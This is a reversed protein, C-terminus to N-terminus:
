PEIAAILDNIERALGEFEAVVETLNRPPSTRSQIHQGVSKTGAWDAYEHVLWGQQMAGKYAASASRVIAEFPEAAPGLIKQIEQYAERRARSASASLNYLVVGLVIIDSGCGEIVDGLVRLGELGHVHDTTPAVLYEGAQLAVTSLASVGGVTPLDVVIRDYCSEVRNFAAAFRTAGQPDAALVAALRNLVRGAVVVDLRDRVDVVVKLNVGHIVADALRRGDGHKEPKLGMALTANAQPAADVLLVRLGHESAWLASLTTALATKGVGGAGSSVVVSNRIKRM